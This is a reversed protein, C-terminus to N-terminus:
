EGLPNFHKILDVIKAADDYSEPGGADRQIASKLRSVFTKAQKRTLGAADRLWNEADSLNMIGDMSKYSSVTAQDNAPFTCISIEQLEAIRSFVLGTDSEEVANWDPWFGVSLGAVTGHKMAAAIDASQSNGQTLEGNVYLGRNDEVASVWKGIPVAWQEHNFFMAPMKGTKLAADFAGPLIVDGHGDVNNFVSAYGGFVGTSNDAFKMQAKDFAISKKIPKM